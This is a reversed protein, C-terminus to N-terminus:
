PSHSLPLTYVEFEVLFSTTLNEVLEDLGNQIALVVCVDDVEPGSLLGGALPSLEFAM